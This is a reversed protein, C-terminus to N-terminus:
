YNARLDMGEYLHAVEEGYGNFMLTDKRKSFLGGGVVRETAQSWRPHDVEPNVNSYFGYEQPLLQEWTGVPQEDTLTIRVISKISKFGYKWPVVLRLPAGNQNPIPKGYIGTAMITLPHLAEDVRLGEIYPWDIWASRQGPMEAPRYLTEFRVFRAEPKVGALALLDALEFGNWPVVMSWAEVCRLRYIREEVTMEAMIDKFDFAGPREVMGDITVTWPDTTLADAYAAPHGKGTGFEYFNNYQTIDEWANPVLADETARAAGAAGVVGLGLAGGMLQRRNIYAGFPTADARTLDNKWRYAM